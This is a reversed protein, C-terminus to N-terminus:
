FKETIFVACSGSITCASLLGSYGDLEVTAKKAMDYSYNTPTATDTLSLLIPATTQIIIGKRTMNVPVLSTSSTTVNVSTITAFSAKDPTTNIVVPLNATPKINTEFDIADATGKELTTGWFINGDPLILEYSNDLEIYQTPLGKNTMLTKFRSYPIRLEDSM